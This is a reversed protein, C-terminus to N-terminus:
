IFALSCNSVSGSYSASSTLSRFTGATLARGSELTTCVTCYPEGCRTLTGEFSFAGEPKSRPRTKSKRSVLLDRASAVRQHHPRRDLLAQLAAKGDQADLGGERRRPKAPAVTSQQVQPPEAKPEVLAPREIYKPTEVAKPTESVPPANSRQPAEAMARASAAPKAPATTAPSDSSLTLSRPEGAQAAASALVLGTILILKRM